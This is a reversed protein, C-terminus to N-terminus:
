KKYVVWYVCPIGYVNESIVQEMYYISPNTCFFNYADQYNIFEERM